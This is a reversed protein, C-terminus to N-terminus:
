EVISVPAGIPAASYLRYAVFEPFRICGHSDPIGPLPGAHMGIGGLIRLFYPMATGRFSTGLPPPSHLLDINAAIVQGHEDVYDGYRSSVHEPIKELITYQGPPTKHGRRGTCVSSQAVLADGDFIDARQDDLHIVISPRELTEGARWFYDGGPHPKAHRPAGLSGPHAAPIAEASEPEPSTCGLLASLLLLGAGRWRRLTVLLLAAAAAL